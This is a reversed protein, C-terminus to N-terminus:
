DRASDSRSRPRREVGGGGGSGIASRTACARALPHMRAHRLPSTSLARTSALALRRFEARAVILVAGSANAAVPIAKTRSVVRRLARESIGSSRCLKTTPAQSVCRWRHFHMLKMECTAGLTARPAVPSRARGALLKAVGLTKCRRYRKARAARPNLRAIFRGSAGDSGGIWGRSQGFRTVVRGRFSAERRSLALRRRMM